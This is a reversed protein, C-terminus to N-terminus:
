LNAKRSRPRGLPVRPSPLPEPTVRPQPCCGLTCPCPRPGLLPGGSLAPTLRPRTTVRPCLLRPLPPRSVATAGPAKASRLLQPFSPALLETACWPGAQPRPMPCSCAAPAHQCPPPCAPAALPAPHGQPRSCSFCSTVRQPAGPIDGTPQPTLCPVPACPQPPQPPQPTDPERPPCCPLPTVVHLYRRTPPEAELGWSLLPPEAHLPRSPAPKRQPEGPAAGPGQLAPVSASCPHAAPLLPSRPESGAAAPQILLARGPWAGGSCGSGPGPLTTGM